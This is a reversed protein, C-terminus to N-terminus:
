ENNKEEANFERFDDVDFDFKAYSCFHGEEEEVEIVLNDQLFEEMVEAAIRDQAQVWIRLTTTFLQPNALGNFLDCDTAAAEQDHYLLADGQCDSWEDGTFYQNKVNVITYRSLPGIKTVNFYRM